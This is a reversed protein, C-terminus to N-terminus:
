VSRQIEGRDPRGTASTEIPRTAGFARINDTEMPSDTADNDFTELYRSGGYAWFGDNLSDSETESALSGDPNLTVM